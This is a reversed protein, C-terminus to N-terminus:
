DAEELLQLLFEAEILALLVFCAPAGINEGATGTLTPV